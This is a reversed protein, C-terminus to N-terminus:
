ANKLIELARQLDKPLPAEFEINEMTEPHCISIKHAHLAVRKIAKFLCNIIHTYRVHFSKAYKVGGNYVEDCFIPHGISKMHVRLQHTRGTKPYLKVLSLPALYQDLQYETLSDRGGKEVVTFLKRNKPHRGLNGAIVGKDNLEGWTLALYEKKVRRLNFQQSLVDHVKDNKAIIIVGSTNKDLRHVIGPREINIHSLENFHHILGNLLTGSSNGSGPHVVLGAPKNIVALVNDEYLIDLDMVEAKISDNQLESTFQCEIIEKGQLILSSKVPEGDITVQGLKIYNQIKSRSYDPLKGALYQDLRLHSQKVTFSRHKIM